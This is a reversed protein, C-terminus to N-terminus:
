EEEFEIDQNKLFSGLKQQSSIIALKLEASISNIMEKSERKIEEDNITEELNSLIKKLLINTNSVTNKLSNKLDDVLEEGDLKDKIKNTLDSLENSIESWKNNEDM